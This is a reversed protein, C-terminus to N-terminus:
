KTPEATAGRLARPVSVTAVPIAGSTMIDLGEVKIDRVRLSKGMELETIDVEIKSPINKSDAKVKLKRVKLELKGGAQQGKAFGKLVIPIETKVKKGDVLQQFDIHLMKDTVPHFQIEKVIAKVEKGNLTIEAIVFKDTFIVKRLKNYDVTFNINENNGYLVCPVLDGKREIASSTKGLKSRVQGELKFSEM